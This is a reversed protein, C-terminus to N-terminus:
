QKKNMIFSGLKEYPTIKLYQNFITSRMQHYDTKKPVKVKISLLLQSFYIFRGYDNLMM